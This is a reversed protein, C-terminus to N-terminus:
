LHDRMVRFAADANRWTEHLQQGLMRITASQTRSLSLRDAARLLEGAADPHRRGHEVAPAQATPEGTTPRRPATPARRTTEYTCGSTALAVALAAGGVAYRTNM